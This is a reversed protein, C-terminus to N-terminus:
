SSQVLSWSSFRARSRDVVIKLEKEYVAAYRRDPYRQAVAAMETDLAIRGIEDTQTASILSKGWERLLQADRQTARNAAEAILKGGV